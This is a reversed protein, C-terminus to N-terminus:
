TRKLVVQVSSLSRAVIFLLRAMNEIPIVSRNKCQPCVIDRLAFRFQYPEMMIRVLESLTQWDIEDLTNIVKNLNNVGTIKQFKGNEKPVLFSRVVTLTTYNLGRSVLTPDSESAEELSKVESYISNLYDYASIHGFVINFGSTPLKVTNNIKLMSSNYVSMIDAQNSASGIQEMDALIAPSVSTIDLLENPSYIWDYSKGCAVGNNIAHCDISIIEQEMATACLIKWLIFELDMFSTKMLFDEFKSVEFVRKPDIGAPASATLSIEVRQHTTPDIYWQYERWPGISQNSIHAFCISWKKKEGDLNNMEQSNTLDIVETYSLGSVTVRYKSAPLAAVIDNTKRQYPALIADVANDDADEIQSYEINQTEVINLEVSRAKKIKEVEEQTWSVEALQSKDIVIKVDDNSSDDEEHIEATKTETIPATKRTDYADHVTEVPTHVPIETIKEGTQKSNFDPKQVGRNMPDNKAPDIWSKIFEPYNKEIDDFIEDIGAQARKYNTDGAATMILAQFPGDPIQMLAIGHRKKADEINAGKRGLEDMAERSDQLANDDAINKLGTYEEETLESKEYSVPQQKMEDMGALLDADPTWPVKKKPTESVTSETNVEDEAAPAPHKAFLEKVETNDADAMQQAMDLVSFSSKNNM